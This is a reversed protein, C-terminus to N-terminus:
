PNGPGVQIGPDGIWRRGHLCQYEANGIPYRPMEDRAPKRPLHGFSRVSFYPEYREIGEANDIRLAQGDVLKWRRYMDLLDLRIPLGVISRASQTQRRM